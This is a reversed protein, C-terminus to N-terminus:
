SSSPVSDHRESLGRRIEPDALAQPGLASMEIFMRELGAPTFCLLRGGSVGARIMHITGPSISIFDGPKLSREENGLLFAFEGALVYFSERGHQHIHPVTWAGEPGEFELLSFAGGLQESLARVEFHTQGISYGRGQGAIAVVSEEAM